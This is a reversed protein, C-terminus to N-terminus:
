DHLQADPIADRRKCAPLGHGNGVQPVLVGDDVAEIDLLVL